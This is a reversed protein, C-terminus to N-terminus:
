SGRRKEIGSMGRMMERERERQLEWTCFGLMCARIFFVQAKHKGCKVSSNSQEVNENKNRKKSEAFGFPLLGKWM